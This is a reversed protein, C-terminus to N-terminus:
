EEDGEMVYILEEDCKPCLTPKGEWEYGCRSCKMKM